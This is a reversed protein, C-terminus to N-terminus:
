TPSLVKTPIVANKYMSSEVVVQINYTNTYEGLAWFDPFFVFLAVLGQRLSRNDKEESM